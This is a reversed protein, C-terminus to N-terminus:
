LQVGVAPVPADVGTVSIAATHRYELQAIDGFGIALVGAATLLGPQQLLSGEGSVSLVYAGVVDATPMAYLRSSRFPGRFIEGLTADRTRPVPADDDPEAIARS